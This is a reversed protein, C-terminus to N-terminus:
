CRNGSAPHDPCKMFLRYRMPRSTYIAYTRYDLLRRAGRSKSTNNQKKLYKRIKIMDYSLITLKDYTPIFHITKTTITINIDIISRPIIKDVIRMSSIIRIFTLKYNTNKLCYNISLTLHGGGEL